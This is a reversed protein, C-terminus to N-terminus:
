SPFPRPPPRARRCPSTPAPAAGGAGRPPATRRGPPSSVHRMGSNFGLEVGVQVALEGRRVRRLELLVQARAGLAGAQLPPPARHTGRQATPQRAKRRRVRQPGARRAPPPAPRPPPPPPAGGGRPRGAPALVHDAHEHPGGSLPARRSRARRGPLAIM